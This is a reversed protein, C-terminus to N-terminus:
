GFQRIDCKGADRGHFAAGEDCAGSAIDDGLLRARFAFALDVRSGQREIGLLFIATAAIVHITGGCKMCNLGFRIGKGAKPQFGCVM